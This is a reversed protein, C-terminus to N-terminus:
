AAKVQIRGREIKLEVRELQAQPATLCEGTSADFRFGHWPCTITCAEPDVMGGDLPLGQHACENRFANVTGDILLLLISRDELDMRHPKGEVLDTMRPGNKWGPALLLDTLPVFVTSTKPPPPPEPPNDTRVIGHMAFLTYVSPDDALEMLLEKGRPDARLHRVMRIIGDKHFEEIAAKLELAKERASETLGNVQEVANDVRQARVDIQEALEDLATTTM